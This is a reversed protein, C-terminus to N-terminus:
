LITSLEITGMDYQNGIMYRYLYYKYSFVKCIYIEM